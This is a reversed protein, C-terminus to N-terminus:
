EPDELPKRLDQLPFKDANFMTVMVELRCKAGQIAKAETAIMARVRTDADEKTLHWHPAGYYGSFRHNVDWVAAHQDNAWKAKILRIGKDKALAGKTIYVDFTEVVPLAKKEIM